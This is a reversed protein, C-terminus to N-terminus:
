DLNLPDHSEIGLHVVLSEWNDGLYKWVSRSFEEEHLREDMYFKSKNSIQNVVHENKLRDM